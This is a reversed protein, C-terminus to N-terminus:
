RRCANLLIVCLRRRLPEIKWRRRQNRPWDARANIPRREPQASAVSFLTNVRKAGFWYRMESGSRLKRLYCNHRCAYFLSVFLHSMRAVDIDYM